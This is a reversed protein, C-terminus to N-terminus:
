WRIPALVYWETFAGLRDTLAYTVCCSQALDVFTERSEPDVGLNVQTGGCVGLFENIEWGYVWNVGPLIRDSSYNSSGTPLTMQPIIAIEPPIGQQQTLGLKVGLYLDEQGDSTGELGRISEAAYSWGVRLELWEALTGVRLFTEPYSHAHVQNTGNDDFLYTYGMELQVVGLGVTHSSETFDPRESSLPEDLGAPGGIPEADSQWRLLTTPGPRCESEDNILRLWDPTAASALSCSAALLMGLAWHRARVM